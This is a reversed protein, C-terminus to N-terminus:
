RRWPPTADRPLRLPLDHQGPGTDKLAEFWAVFAAPEAPAQAARSAVLAREDELFRRERELHVREDQDQAGKAEDPVGPSLRWRNFGDLARQAQVFSERATRATAPTAASASSVTTM